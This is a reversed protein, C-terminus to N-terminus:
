TFFPKSHFNAMNGMLLRRVVNVADRSQMMKSSKIGNRHATVHQVWFYYFIGYLLLNHWTPKHSYVIINECHCFQRVCKKSQIGTMLYYMVTFSRTCNCLKYKFQVHM